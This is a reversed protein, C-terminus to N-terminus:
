LIILAGVTNGTNEELLLAKSHTSQNLIIESDTILEVTAFENVNVADAKETKLTDANVKGTIAKITCRTELSNIRLIYSCGITCPQDADLWCMEALIHVSSQIKENIGTLMNGRAFAHFGSIYLCYNGGATATDCTSYGSYIREITVTDGDPFLQLSDGVHITGSLVRGAIGGDTTIYQVDYRVASTAQQRAPTCNELYNLLAPGSYWPMHVSATTVNDGVLASFPIYTVSGLGAAQALEEFEQQIGAYVNESYDVADMKNIAVVVHAIRLFAAVQTHRRTQATIGNIADIMIIIVDVASAGTVLNRTYQFHGPADTIIYKKTPTAFYKYAVDITIGLAREARLGDTVHALNYGEDENAISLLVDDKINGTELLLRGTLTSKGDDVSGATTFRLLQRNDEDM